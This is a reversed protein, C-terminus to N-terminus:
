RVNRTKSMTIKPKFEITTLKTLMQSSITKCSLENTFTVALFYDRLLVKTDYVTLFVWRIQLIHFNVIKM